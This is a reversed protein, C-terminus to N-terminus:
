FPNSVLPWLPRSTKNLRLASFDPNATGDAAVYRIRDVVPAFGANFHQASKVFITDYDRLQVGLQTFADPHFTQTRMSMLVIHLGSAEILVTEGMSQQGRGFTQQGKEVIALVRARLDVPDGSLPGVKGGVRLAVEGGVGAEKCLRVAVPDWYCGTLCRTVCGKLLAKLIFTSDSAAGAGANDSVDAFVTLGDEPRLALASAVEVSLLPDANETRMAWVRNAMEQALAQAAARDGDAVVIIKAGVEPVDAWPFGHVFSVSLIGNRGEAAHMQEVFSRTPQSPTRWVGLMRCDAVAIVPTFRKQVTEVCLDFLEVARDNVDVHPYEKYSLVIDAAKIMRDTLHAHLDLEVGIVVNRGVQARVREILEGECDDEEDSVMAGHLQLLVIDPVPADALDGLVMDRMEEWVTQRTRGAPQAFAAVSETLRFGRKAAACRWIKLPGAFWHDTHLSGERRYWLDDTFAAWGTPIPSFTNTETGLAATFIQLTSGRAATGPRM